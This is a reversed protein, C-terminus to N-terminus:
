IGPAVPHDVQPSVLALAPGDDLSLKHHGVGMSPPKGYFKSEGIQLFPTEPTAM